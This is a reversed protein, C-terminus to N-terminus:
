PALHAVSMTIVEEHHGSPLLTIVRRYTNLLDRGYTTYTNEEVHGIIFM